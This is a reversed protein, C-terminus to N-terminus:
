VLPVEGDRLLILKIQCVDHFSYILYVVRAFLSIDKRSTLHNPCWFWSPNQTQVKSDPQHQLLFFCFHCMADNHLKRWSLALCLCLLSPVSNGGVIVVYMCTLCANYRSMCTYWLFTYWIFRHLDSRRGAAESCAHHMSPISTFHSQSLTVPIMNKASYRKGHIFM